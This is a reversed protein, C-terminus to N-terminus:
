LVKSISNTLQSTFRIKAHDSFHTKVSRIVCAAAAAWPFLAALGAIEAGVFTDNLIVSVFNYRGTTM